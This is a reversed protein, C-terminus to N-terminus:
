RCTATTSTSPCSAQETGDREVTRSAPWGHRDRGRQVHGQFGPGGGARGAALGRDAADRSAFTGRFQLAILVGFAAVIVLLVAGAVKYPPQHRDVSVKRCKWACLTHRGATSRIRRLGALGHRRQGVPQAVVAGGCGVAGAEGLGDPQGRAREGRLRGTRADLHPHRGENRHLADRSGPVGPAIRGVHDLGVRAGPQQKGGAQSSPRRPPGRLAPTTRIARRRSRPSAATPGAARNVTRGRRVTGALPKTAPASPGVPSANRRCFGQSPRGPRARQVACLRVRATATHRSGRRLSIGPRLRQQFNRSM